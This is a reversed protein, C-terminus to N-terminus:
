IESIDHALLTRVALSTTFAPSVTSATIRSDISGLASNRQSQFLRQAIGPDPCRLFKRRARRDFPRHGVEGLKPGKHLKGFADLAHDMDAFDAGLLADIM